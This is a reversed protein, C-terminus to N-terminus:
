NLKETTEGTDLNFLGGREPFDIGVGFAEM